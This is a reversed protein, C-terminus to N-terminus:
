DSEKKALWNSSM